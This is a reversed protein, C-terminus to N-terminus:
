VLVQVVLCILRESLKYLTACKGNSVCEVQVQVKFLFTSLVSQCGVLASGGARAPSPVVSPRWNSKRDTSIREMRRARDQERMLVM